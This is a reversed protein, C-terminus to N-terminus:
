FEFGDPQPANRLSPICTEFLGTVTYGDETTRVIRKATMIPAKGEVVVLRGGVKLQQKFADALLPVSGTLVIADYPAQPKWGAAANGLHTTVNGLGSRRLNRTASEHLAQHIEVTHVTGALMGLLAATYGTGTGVELVTDGPQVALEQLMRAELKPALMVEGQGIPIEMDVFALSRYAPPVFDERKVKFLLALIGADLVEWTRVQSEVMNFRAKDYDMVNRIADGTAM